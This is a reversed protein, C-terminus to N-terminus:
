ALVENIEVLEITADDISAQLAPVRDTLEDPRHSDSGLVFEVGHDEFRSFMSPNPHLRGLSRNIRGANVEPVTRSAALATAVRDYDNPRSHGRLTELREPLDLHGLVDFLESEVLSVVADYYREVAARRAEASVDVYPADSTYDYEGAFHVSGVTYDFDATRLFERIADVDREVYSMETADYLSVDVDTRVTEILERRREYTEVLDYKSRRGFADATVICHDTLGIGNLGADEAAGVMTSLDSGDSFTTHTHIDTQM